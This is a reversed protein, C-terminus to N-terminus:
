HGGNTSTEPTDFLVPEGAFNRASHVLITTPLNSLIVTMREFFPTVSEDEAPLRIGVIALDAEKSEEGMIQAIPRGGSPIVRRGASLRAAELTKDLNAEVAAREHEERVVTLVTVKASRFEDHATLLFELLLM